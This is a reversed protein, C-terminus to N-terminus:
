KKEPLLLDAHMLIRFPLRLLIYATQASNQGWDNHRDDSDTLSGMGSPRKPASLFDPLKVDALVMSFVQSAMRWPSNGALKQVSTALPVSKRALVTTGNAFNPWALKAWSTTQEATQTPELGFRPESPPQQFVFFFGEPSATTGGYADDVSLNFGLFTMDTPLTGRFIPYRQDADDHVRNGDSDRKAKIAYVVTSPYRRFLEGRVLLVVNHPAVNTQNVNSGLKRTGWRPIPPIDKLQEALAKPDQPDSPHPIYASVDWFQRFYTARQDFTPYDEWILQRTMEHSLGAMYSEVFAHNQVVISVSDPPVQDAGPLLYSPSLDRLPAYMPQPFDPAALIPSALIDSPQWSIRPLSIIAQMRQAVTVNPDIRDMVTKQLSRLHLPPKEPPDAPRAQFAAFLAITAKRFAKAQPSDGGASTGGQLPPTGPMTITFNPRSPIATAQKPTFSSTRIRKSRGGFWEELEAWAAAGVIAAGIGVGALGLLVLLFFRRTIGHSRRRALELATLVEILKKELAHERVESVEDLSVLGQPPKPKPVVIVKGDNIKRLLSEGKLTTSGLRRPRTVRRYTPSLVREPVRSNRVAGRVTTAGALVRGHLPATLILVTDGSAPALHNVYLQQLSARALQGQQLAQNAQLIGDLQQWASAILQTRESQVVQTGMGAAARTRPDLNLANIWADSTRDVAQVGAPWRGYIPPTIVPDELHTGSPDDTVPVTQNIREQLQSQFADRDNHNWPTSVMIPSALAGELGLPGKADPLNLGPMSVDMLRQGVAHPLVKIRQLRRVLSEFDGADSTHFDFQYYVPLDLPSQTRSTWSPVTPDAQSADQGLGALRGVEYAPVLFATYATEPDLRRPCLLRSLVNRPTTALNDALSSDGSVQAHAWNWSDSLDQLAAMNTVTIKPLPNPADTSPTYDIQKLAILAIWPTLQDGSPCGTVSSTSNGGPGAPTFLWPFDPSDFEIACLYNPEFNMTSKLPETRVIHRPDIGIVDGPGYLQVQVAKPQRPYNSGSQDIVSLQVSVAVRNQGSGAPPSNVSAGIGRRAWSLFHYHGATPDSM